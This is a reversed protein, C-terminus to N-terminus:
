DIASLHHEVCTAAPPALALSLEGTPRWNIYIYTQYNINAEELNFTLRSIKHFLLM